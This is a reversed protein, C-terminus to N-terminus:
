KDKFPNPAASIMAYYVEQHDKKSPDLINWTCADYGASDMERSVKSPVLVMGSASLYAQIAEQMDKLAETKLPYSSDGYFVRVAEEIGKEHAEM